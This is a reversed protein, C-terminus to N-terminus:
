TKREFYKVIEVFLVLALNLVVIIGWDIWQLSTTKFADHGITTEILIIQLTISISHILLLYKNKFLGISFLSRNYSRCNHANFMQLLGFTCFAMTRAYTVAAPNGAGGRDNM